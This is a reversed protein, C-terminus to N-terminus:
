RTKGLCADVLSLLKRQEAKTTAPYRDFDEKLRIDAFFSDGDEHFHLFARSGCYFAGRSKEKLARKRLEALLPELRDLAASGAHKM